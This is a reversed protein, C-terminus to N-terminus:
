AVLRAFRPSLRLALRSPSRAVKSQIDCRRLMWPDAGPENAGWTTTVARAYGARRAAARVREDQDGNPYCFSDCPAGVEGALRSRSGDMERELQADDVLTLIPHSLSHSGIEHGERALQRIQDWTMLGDWEPRARDGLADEVRAVFELRAGPALAKARQVTAIGVARDDLAEVPGLVGVLDLAVRRDRALLARTAYGLRDHWLLEGSDIADVPIFFSAPVGAQELVARAHDFNDRQGDDFTIALFPKPPREGGTWRRHASALTACTYHVRFYDVFWSFEDVTVAINGVPYERLAADPLVRHFTVVTLYGGAAWAPRTVGCGYLLGGAVNRVLPWLARRLTQAVPPCKCLVRRQM